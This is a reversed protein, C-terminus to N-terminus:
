TSGINFPQSEVEYFTDQSQKGVYTPHETLM